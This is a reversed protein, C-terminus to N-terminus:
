KPAIQVGAGVCRWRPVFHRTSYIFVICHERRAPFPPIGGVKQFDGGSKFFALKANVQCGVPSCVQNKLPSNNIHLFSPPWIM